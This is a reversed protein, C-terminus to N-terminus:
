EQKQQCVSDKAILERLVNQQEVSLSTIAIGPTQIPKDKSTIDVHDKLMGCHRALLELAKVKSHLKISISGGAASTTQSVSEVAATKEIDLSNSNRLTVDDGDWEAFDSMNSFGCRQLEKVIADQTLRLRIMRDAMLEQIRLKIIPKSLNESGIEQATERSYGARIAANTVHFEPDAVYEQCFLEQKITLKPHIPNRTILIKKKKM